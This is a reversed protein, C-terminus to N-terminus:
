SVLYIYARTFLRGRQGQLGHTHELRANRNQDISRTTLSFCASIVPTKISAPVSYTPQKPDRWPILHIVSLGRTM